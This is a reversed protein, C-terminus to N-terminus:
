KRARVSRGGGGNNLKLPQIGHEDRVVGPGTVKDLLQGETNRVRRKEGIQFKRVLSSTSMAPGDGFSSSPFGGDGDNPVGHVAMLCVTTKVARLPSRLVVGVVRLLLVVVPAEVDATAM